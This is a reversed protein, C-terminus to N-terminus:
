NLAGVLLKHLKTHLQDNAALVQSDAISPSRGRY